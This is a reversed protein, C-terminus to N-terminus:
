RDRQGEKATLSCAHMCLHATTLWHASFMRGLHLWYLVQRSAHHSDEQRHCRWDVGVAEGANAIHGAWGYLILAVRDGGQQMHDADAHHQAPEPGLLLHPGPPGQKFLQRWTLEGMCMAQGPASLGVGSLMRCFCNNMGKSRFHLVFLELRDPLKPSRSCM